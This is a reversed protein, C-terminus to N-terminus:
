LKFEPRQDHYKGVRKKFQQFVDDRINLRLARKPAYLKMEECGLCILLHYEVKGVSWTMCYDPHFGGCLKEETFTSFSQQDSSLSRLPEIDKKELVLPKKYFPYEGIKITEKTELETQLSKGKGEWSHPLGEYLTLSSAQKIADAIPNFIVLDKQTLESKKEAYLPSNLFGFALLLTVLKRGIM